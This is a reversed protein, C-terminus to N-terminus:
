QPVTLREVESRSPVSAQAGRRTVSISAATNAFVIADELSHGESLAVALAANFTDGAATVDVAEVNRGPFHESRREDALWAGNEGLKLIVAGTGLKLIDRAIGEAETLGVSNGKRGLLKLAESENPTLIDVQKLLVPDLLQAPAPDLITVMGRKRARHAATDVTAIPSELQLLLFGNEVNVFAHELDAPSLRGNAGATVVIQNQGGAEVFILAVGTTENPTTLVESTDVGALALSHKLREGFVDEGVRGVIRVDGGLRSAACAQNAGKGGPLMEFGWGGITQGPLPLKEMQVLFDM